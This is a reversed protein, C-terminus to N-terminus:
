NKSAQTRQRKKLESHGDSPHYELSCTEGESCKLQIMGSQEPRCFKQLFSDPSLRIPTGKYTVSQKERSAKNKGNLTVHRLKLRKPKM